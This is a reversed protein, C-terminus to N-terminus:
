RQAEFVAQVEGDWTTVNQIEFLHGDHVFRDGREVDTDPLIPHCRIGFITGFLINTREMGTSTERSTRASNFEIRVCQAEIQVSGRLFQVSTAREQIRRWADQARVRARQQAIPLGNRM